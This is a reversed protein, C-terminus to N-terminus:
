GPSDPHHAGPLYGVSMLFEGVILGGTFRFNQRFVRTWAEPANPQHAELWGHFAGHSRRMERIRRVNASVAEIKQRNRVIGADAMLRERDALACYALGAQAGSVAAPARRRFSRARGTRDPNGLASPGSVADVGVGPHLRRHRDALEHHRDTM